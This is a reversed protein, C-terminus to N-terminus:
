SISDMCMCFYNSSYLKWISSSIPNVVVTFKLQRIGHTFSTANDGTFWMLTCTVGTPTIQHALRIHEVHSIDAECTPENCLGSRHNVHVHTLSIRRWRAGPIDEIVGLVPVAAWSVLPKLISCWKYYLSVKMKLESCTYSRCLGSSIQKHYQFFVAM